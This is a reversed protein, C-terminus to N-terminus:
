VSPRVSGLGGHGGPGAKPRQVCASDGAHHSAVLSWLLPNHSLSPLAKLQSSYVRPLQFHVHVPRSIQFESSNETRAGRGALWSVEASQETERVTMLRISIM